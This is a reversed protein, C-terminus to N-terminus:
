GSTEMGGRGVHSDRTTIASRAERIRHRRSQTYVFWLFIGILSGFVLMYWGTTVVLWFLGLLVAVGIAAAVGQNKSLPWILHASGTYSIPTSIQKQATRELQDVYQGQSTTM